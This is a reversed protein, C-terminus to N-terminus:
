QVRDSSSAAAALAEKQPVNSKAINTMSLSFGEDGVAYVSRRPKRGSSWLRHAVLVVLWMYVSVLLYVSSVAIHMVITHEVQVEHELNHELVHQEWAEDPGGEGPRHAPHPMMPHVGVAHHGPESMFHELQSVQVVIRAVQSAISLAHLLLWPMAGWRSTVISTYALLASSAAYLVSYALFGSLVDRVYQDFPPESVDGAGIAPVPHARDHHEHHPVHRQRSDLEDLSLGLLVAVGGHGRGRALEAALQTMVVSATLLGAVAVIRAGISIDVCCLPM